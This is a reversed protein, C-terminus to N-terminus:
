KFYTKIVKAGASLGTITSVIQGNVPNLVDIVPNFQYSIFIRDPSYSPVAQGTLFRIPHKNNIPLFSQPNSGLDGMNTVYFSAGYNSYLWDNRNYDLLCVDSAAQGSFPNDPGGWQATIVFIRKGFGPTGGGSRMRDQIARFFEMRRRM